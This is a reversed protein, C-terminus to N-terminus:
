MRSVTYSTQAVGPRAQEAPAPNLAKPELSAQGGPNWAGQRPLMQDASSPATVLQEKATAPTLLSHRAAGGGNGTRRPTERGRGHNHLQNPALHISKILIPAGGKERSANQYTVPVGSGSVVSPKSSAASPRREALFTRPRHDLNNANGRAHGAYTMCEHSGVGM